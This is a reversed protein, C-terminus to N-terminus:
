LPFAAGLELSDWALAPPRPRGCPGRRVCRPAPSAAHRSAASGASPPPLAPLLLRCAPPPCRWPRAGRSPSPPGPCLRPGCVDFHRLLCSVLVLMKHRPLYEKEVFAIERFGGESGPAAFVGCRGECGGSLLHLGRVEPWVVAFAPFLM